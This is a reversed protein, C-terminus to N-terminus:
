APLPPSPGRASFPDPAAHTAPRWGPHFRHLYRSLWLDSRSGASQRVGSLAGLGAPGIWFILGVAIPLLQDFGDVVLQLYDLPSIPSQMALNPTECNGLAFSYGIRKQFCAAWPKM